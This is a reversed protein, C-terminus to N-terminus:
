TGPRPNVVPKAIVFLRGWSLNGENEICTQLTLHYEGRYVKNFLQEATLLNQTELDKFNSYPSLPKLAQYQLISEVVFSQTRGNGYVLTIADGPKLGSFMSGALYNHALLGVNGTEAAMGFQTIVSDISSVYGPNGKPQQIVPFAMLGSVYIGRLSHEDGNSVAQIFDSLAPIVNPNEKAYAQVPLAFTCFLISFLIFSFIRNKFQTLRDKSTM